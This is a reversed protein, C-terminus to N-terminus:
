GIGPVEPAVDVDAPMARVWVEQRPYPLSV